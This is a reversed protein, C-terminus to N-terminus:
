RELFFMHEIGYQSLTRLCEASRWAIGGFRSVIDERNFGIDVMTIGSGNFDPYEAIVGTKEQWPTFLTLVMRKRFSKLANDLIRDWQPNHELVHRLQVADPDSRYDILDVLRDAYPSKSGDVGLYHQEPRLFLKFGGLGCGWDEVTIIGPADLFRAARVASEQDSFVERPPDGAYWADWLGMRSDLNSSM